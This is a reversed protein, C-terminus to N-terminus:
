AGTLMQAQRSRPDILTVDANSIQNKIEPIVSNTIFDQTMVNGQVYVSVQTTPGSNASTTPPPAAAVVGPNATQGPIAGAGVGGASPASGTASGGFEASRIADMQAMQSAFAIAGFLAGVVPGGMATGWEFAKMVTSPLTVAAEALKAAKVANFMARSHQAGAGIIQEMYKANSVITNKWSLDDIQAQSAKGAVVLAVVDNQYQEEAQYLQRQYDKETLLEADRFAKLDNLQKTYRAKAAASPDQQNFQNQLDLGQKAKQVAKEAEAQAYLQQTVKAIEEPSDKFKPDLRLAAIQKQVNLDANREATLRKIEEASKGTLSMEFQMQALSETTMVRSREILKIAEEHAKRENEKHIKLQEAISMEMLKQDVLKKQAESLQMTGAELLRNLEIQMKQSESLPKGSEAATNFSETMKQIRSIFADMQQNGTNELDRKAKAVNEAASTAASSFGLMKDRFKDFDADIKAQQADHDASIAKMAAFDGSALAATEAMLFGIEDGLKKFEFVVFGAGLAVGRLADGMHKGLFEAVEHGNGNMDIFAQVADDIAPVIGESLVTASGQASIKLRDLNDNLSNSREAFESTVPNLKQGEEVMKRLAEGGELMAPIMSAGGKGMLQTAVYTRQAPDEISRIADAVQYMAEMPDKATVGLTKLMDAQKGGNIEANAMYLSLKQVSKTMEETSAGSLKAAHSLGNISEVSLGSRQSLIFLNDAAETSSKIIETFAAAGLAPVLMAMASNLKESTLKVEELGRKVSDVAQKTEDKASITINAKNENAM